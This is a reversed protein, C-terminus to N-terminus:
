RARHREWRQVYDKDARGEDRPISAVLVAIAVIINSWTVVQPAGTFIAASSVLLWVALLTNLRRLAPMFTAFLAVATICIGVIMMNARSNNPVAWVWASIVLWAGLLINLWRTFPPRRGVVRTTGPDRMM